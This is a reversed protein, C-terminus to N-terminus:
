SFKGTNGENEKSVARQYFHEAESRWAVKFESSLDKLIHRVDVKGGKHVGEREEKEKLLCM